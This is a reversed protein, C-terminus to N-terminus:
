QAVQCNTIVLTRTGPATGASVAGDEGVRAGTDRLTLEGRVTVTTGLVADPLRDGMCYVMFGDAQVRDGLKARGVTGRVRVVTGIHDDSVATILPATRAAHPGTDEAPPSSAKVCGVSSWLAVSLVVTGLGLKM